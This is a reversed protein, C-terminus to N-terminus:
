AEARLVNARVTTTFPGDGTTARVVETAEKLVLERVHESLGELREKRYALVGEASGAGLEGFVGAVGGLRCGEVGFRSGAPLLEPVDGLAGVGQEALAAAQEGESVGGGLLWEALRRLQEARHAVAGGEGLCFGEERL